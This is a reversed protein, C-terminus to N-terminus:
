VIEASGLQRILGSRGTMCFVCGVACGVQTSVCLGDRALLVSEITQGDGLGLLLREAGDESPHVSRLTTLAALDCELAPLAAEVGRPLFDRLDPMGVQLKAQTWLRLLRQEHIPQAGAQRLRDRIKAIHM